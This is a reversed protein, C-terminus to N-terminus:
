KREAPRTSAAATLGFRPQLVPATRVGRVPTAMLHVGGGIDAANGTIAVRQRRSLRRNASVASTSRPVATAAIGGGQARTTETSEPATPARMRLTARELFVGGGKGARRTATSARTPMCPEPHRRLRQGSRAYRHRRRQGCLNTPFVGVDQLVVRQCGRRYRRGQRSSGNCDRIDLSQATDGDACPAWPHPIQLVM